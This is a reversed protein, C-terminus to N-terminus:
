DAIAWGLDKPNPSDPASGGRVGTDLADIVL